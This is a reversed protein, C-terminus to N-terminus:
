LKFGVYALLAIGAILLLSVLARLWLNARAIESSRRHTQRAVQTLEACVQALGAGAFREIIRHGFPLCNGGQLNARPWGRIISVGIDFSGVDDIPSRIRHSAPRALFVVWAGTGNVHVDRFSRQM